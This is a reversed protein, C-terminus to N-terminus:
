RVRRALLRRGGSFRFSNRDPTIGCNRFLGERYTDNRIVFLNGCHVKRLSVALGNLQYIAYTDKNFLENM